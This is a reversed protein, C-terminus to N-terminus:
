IYTKLHMDVNIVLTSESPVFPAPLQSSSQDVFEYEPQEGGWGDTDIAKGKGKAQAKKALRLGTKSFATHDWKKTKMAKQKFLNNSSSKARQIQSRSSPLTQSSTVFGGDLTTQITQRPRRSPGAQRNTVVPDLRQLESDDFDFSLDFSDEATPNQRSGPDDSVTQPTLGDPPFTDPRSTAVAELADIEELAASDFDDFFDDSNMLAPTALRTNLPNNKAIRTADIMQDVFYNEWYTDDVVSEIM